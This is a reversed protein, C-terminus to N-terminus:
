TGESDIEPTKKHENRRRNREATFQEWITEYLDAMQEQALKYAADLLEQKLDSNLPKGLLNQTSLLNRYEEAVLDKEEQALENYSMVQFVEDENLAHIQIDDTKPNNQQTPTPYSDNKVTTLNGGSVFAVEQTSTSPTAAIPNTSTPPQTPQDNLPQSPSPLGTVTPSNNDDQTPILHAPQSEEMQEDQNTQMETFEANARKILDETRKRCHRSLHGTRDCYHCIKVDDKQCITMVDNLIRLTRPLRTNEHLDLEFKFGGCRINTNQYMIFGSEVITGYRGLIGKMDDQTLYHPVDRVFGTVDAREGPIKIDGLEFGHRSVERKKDVSTYRIYFRRRDLCDQVVAEIVEAIPVELQRQLESIIFGTTTTPPVRRLVQTRREAETIRALNGASVKVQECPKQSGQPAGNNPPRGPRPKRSAAAYSM